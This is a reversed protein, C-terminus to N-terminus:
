ENFTELLERKNSLPLEVRVETGLNPISRIAIKGGALEVREQMNLLGFSKSSKEPDFGKGDDIINLKLKDNKLSLNVEASSAKSHRVINTLSEQAVRFATIEINKNSLNTLDDGTLSFHIESNSFLKEAQWNIAASLGLSDLQAPRLMLSLNRVNELTTSAMVQLDTIKKILLQHELRKHLWGLGLKIATLSQGVDDHLEGAIHKRDKELLEMTNASVISLRQNSAKLANQMRLSETLDRIVVQIENKDGPMMKAAIEAEFVSGHERILKRRVFAEQANDNSFFRSVRQVVSDLSDEHVFDLISRGILKECDNVGLMDAVAQNAYTIKMNAFIIVGEPLLNLLNSLQLERERLRQEVDKLKTLDFITGTIKNTNKEIFHHASLLLYHKGSYVNDIIFEKEIEYIEDIYQQELLSKIDMLISANRCNLIDQLPAPKDPLIDLGLHKIANDCCTVKQSNLDIEWFGMGSVRRALENRNNLQKLSQFYLDQETTDELIVLFCLKQHYTTKSAHISVQKTGESPHIISLELPLGKENPQHLYEIVGARDVIKFFDLFDKGILRDQPADYFENAKHNAAQIRNSGADVILIPSPSGEFIEKYSAAAMLSLSDSKVQARVLFVVVFYLLVSTTCVYVIGKLSQAVAYYPTGNFIVHVMADSFLIWTFGLLLYATAIFAAGHNLFKNM